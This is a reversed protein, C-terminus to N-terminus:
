LKVLQFEYESSSYHATATRAYKELQEYTLDGSYWNYGDPRILDFKSKNVRNRTVLYPESSIVLIDGIEVAKETPKPLLTLKM